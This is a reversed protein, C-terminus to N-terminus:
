GTHPTHRPMPPLRIAPQRAARHRRPPGAPSSGSRSSPSRVPDAFWACTRTASYRSSANAVLSLPQLDLRDFQGSKWVEQVAIPIPEGDRVTLVVTAARRQVIQHLVFTSLDDLLRADDVGVIVPTGPSVATLSEIAGRVLELTDTSGSEVWSAFAGMPLAKASSTAIAWRVECGKSAAATLAERAIRSKGVGAAGSIVIGSVDPASM